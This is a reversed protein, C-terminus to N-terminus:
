WYLNTSCYIPLIFELMETMEISIEEGISYKMTRRRCINYKELCYFLILWFSTIILSVPVISAYFAAFFLNKIIIAYKASINMAPKEM